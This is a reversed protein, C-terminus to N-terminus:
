LIEGIKQVNQIKLDKLGSEGCFNWIFLNKMAPGVRGHAPSRTVQQPEFTITSQQMVLWVEGQM